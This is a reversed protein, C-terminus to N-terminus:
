NRIASKNLRNSLYVYLTNLEKIVLNTMPLVTFHGRTVFSHSALTFFRVSGSVNGTPFVSIAAETRPRMSNDATRDTIEYYEGFGVRCDRKYDIKRGRFAEAPSISLGAVHPVLNIRSVAFYVLYHLLGLAVEYPLTIIIGYSSLCLRVFKRLPEHVDVKVM